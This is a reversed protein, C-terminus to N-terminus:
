NASAAATEENAARIAAIKERVAERVFQSVPIDLGTAMQNIVQKEDSNIKVVIKEDKIAM